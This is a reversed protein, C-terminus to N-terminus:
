KPDLSFETLSAVIAAAAIAATEVRLITTTLRVATLGRDRMRGLEQATWGGEPGIVLLIAGDSSPSAGASGNANDALATRRSGRGGPSLRAIAEAVPIADDSETSFYWGQIGSIMSDLAGDLPTLEDIQMVGARRSQKASEIALRLWRDRKGKGTPLVVSRDTQLPIFRDIGIESLKEVLWDARDGKPVASAVTIKVRSRAPDNISNVEVVFGSADAIKVIGRATKGADDFLEVEDGAVLRLVDRAHHAEREPLAIEGVSLQSVHLRRM